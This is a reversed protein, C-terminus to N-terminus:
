SACKNRIACNGPVNNSLLVLVLIAQMEFGTQPPKVVPDAPKM